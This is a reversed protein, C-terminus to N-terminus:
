GKKRSHRHVCAKNYAALAKGKNHKTSASGIRAKLHKCHTGSKKFDGKKGRAM